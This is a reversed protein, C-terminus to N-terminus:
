TDGLWLELYTRTGLGLLGLSFGSQPFSIQQRVCESKQGRKKSITPINDYLCLKKVVIKKYACGSHSKEVNSLLIHTCKLFKPKPPPFSSVTSKKGGRMQNKVNGGRIGQVAVWRRGGPSWNQTPLWVAREEWAAMKWQGSEVGLGLGPCLTLRSEKGPHCLSLHKGCSGISNGGGRSGGQARCAICRGKAGPKPFIWIGSRHKTKKRGNRNWVNEYM